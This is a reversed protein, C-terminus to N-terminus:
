KWLLARGASVTWLEEGQDHLVQIDELTQEDTMGRLEEGYGNEVANRLLKVVDLVRGVDAAAEGHQGRKYKRGTIETAKRLMATPTWSRNPRMGTKAYLKLGHKLSIAVYINPNM